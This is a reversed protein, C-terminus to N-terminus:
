LTKQANKYMRRCHAKILLQLECPKVKFRNALCIVLNEHLPELHPVVKLFAGIDTFVKEM